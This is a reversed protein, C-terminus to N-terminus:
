KFKRLTISIRSTKVKLRKPIAHKHTKQCDGGMIVLSNNELPINAVTQGSSKEKFQFDRTAGFSFCYIPSKDLIQREDDSHFGIYSNGDEYWNVLAMNFEGDSDDISNAYDIYKQILPTMPISQNLTGSFSYSIGYSQQKRPVKMKKGYIIVESSEEPQEDWFQQYEELNMKMDKPLISYSYWTNETLYIKGTM